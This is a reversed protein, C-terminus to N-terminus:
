GAGPRRMLLTALGLLGIGSLVLVAAWSGILAPSAGGSSDTPPLTVAPQEQPAQEEPQPTATVPPCTGDEFFQDLVIVIPETPVQGAIELDLTGFPTKTITCGEDNIVIPEGMPGVVQFRALAPQEPTGWERLAVTFTGDEGVDIPTVIAESDPREREEVRASEVVAPQGETDLISGSVQVTPVADAALAASAVTLVLGLAITTRFAFRAVNTLV